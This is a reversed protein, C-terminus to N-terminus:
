HWQFSLFLRLTQHLFLHARSNELMNCITTLTQFMALSEKGDKGIKLKKKGKSESSWPTYRLYQNLTRFLKHSLQFDQIWKDCFNKRRQETSTSIATVSAAFNNRSHFLQLKFGKPLVGSDPQSNKNLRWEQDRIAASSSSPRAPERLECSWSGSLAKRYSASRIEDQADGPKSTHHYFYWHQLVWTNFFEQSTKM